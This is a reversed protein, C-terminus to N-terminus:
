IIKQGEPIEACCYPQLSGRPSIHGALNAHTQLREKENYADLHDCSGIDNSNMIDQGSLAASARAHEILHYRLASSDRKAFMWNCQSCKQLADEGKDHLQEHKDCAKKNVFLRGCVACACSKYIDAHCFFRHQIRAVSNNRIQQPQSCHDCIEFDRSVPVEQTVETAMQQMDDIAAAAAAQIPQVIKVKKRAPTIALMGQVSLNVSSLMIPPQTDVCGDYSCGIAEYAFLPPEYGIANDDEAFSHPLHQLWDSSETNQNCEDLNVLDGLSALQSAIAKFEDSEAANIPLVMLLFLAIIKKTKLGM